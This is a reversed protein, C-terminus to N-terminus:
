SNPPFVLIADGGAAEIDKAHAVAELTSEANVGCVLVTEDSVTSRSIDLVRRKEDRSLMYNEGAHGNVLFGRIGSICDLSSIHAALEAEDIQFDDSMPCIIAPYIGELGLREIRTM